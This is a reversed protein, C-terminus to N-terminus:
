GVGGATKLTAIADCAPCSGDPRIIAYGAQPDQDFNKYDINFITILEIKVSSMQAAIQVVDHLWQAQEKVSTTAAWNFATPLSQSFGDGTLYGLETFCLPKGPFIQRYTNVMSPFYRTYHSSNGRPDGSSASPPVIGENYHIGVCDLSQAAGANAMARLYPADDCGAASCGGGFFGTPAPAGSIVMVQPDVAKIATYAASLMQTYSRGSIQGSPWERDINEENWVEIADPHMAAIKGVFTAYLPFYAAAGTQAIQEKTGKISLLVKLGHEHTYNIRDRAVNVLSDDGVTFPIQWKIWTFGADQVAKIGADDFDAIQGGVPIPLASVVQPHTIPTATPQPAPPETPAATPAAVTPVVAVPQEGAPRQLQNGVRIPGVVVFRSEGGQLVVHLRLRYIGDPVLGTQWAGLVDNTVLKKSPLTVPTWRAQTDPVSPDYPAVELYYGQLNPLNVTGRVNVTGSVDYVASPFTLAITEDQALAPVTLFAAIVATLLLLRRMLTTKGEIFWDNGPM